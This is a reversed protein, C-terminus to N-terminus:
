DILHEPHSYDMNSINKRKLINSKKKKLWKTQFVKRFCINAQLLFGAYNLRKKPLTMKRLM